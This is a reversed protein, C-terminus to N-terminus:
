PASHRLKQQLDREVIATDVISVQGVVMQWEAVDPVRAPNTRLLEAKIFPYGAALLERWLEATPNVPARQVYADCIRTLRELRAQERRNTTRPGTEAEALQDMARDMLDQYRWLARCRLGGRLLAQTLGVEYRSIVWDKSSVQRVTRWFGRWAPHDLARRGVLVFYSQLHYRHQWSDTAGWVDAKDFDMRSVVDRIPALPGYVSDNAILLRNTEARPLGMVALAEAIAGFDYGINRRVIVAACLDKLLAEAAPDLKGSNTVFVVSFGAAGLSALYTATHDPVRGHRDFHIFIAVNGGLAADAGPFVSVAHRNGRLFSRAYSLYALAMVRARIFRRWAMRCLTTLM